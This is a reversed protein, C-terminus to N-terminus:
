ISLEPTPIRGRSNYEYAPYKKSPVLSSINIRHSWGFMVSFNNVPVNFWLAFLMVITVELLKETETSFDHPLDLM